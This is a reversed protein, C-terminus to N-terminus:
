SNKLECKTKKDLECRYENPEQEQGRKKSPDGKLLGKKVLLSNINVQNRYINITLDQFKIIKNDFYM